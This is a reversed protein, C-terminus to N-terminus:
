RDNLAGPVHQWREGVAVARAHRDSIGFVQGIDTWRWGLRAKERIGQVKEVTLKSTPCAEGVRTYYVQRGKRMMDDTNDKPTGLFLHEPNICPPNDCHHCVLMGPPIQGVITEYVYRHLGVNRGGVMVHIYGKTGQSHSVCVHCGTSTVIYEVPKWSSGYKHPKPWGELVRREARTLPDTRAM